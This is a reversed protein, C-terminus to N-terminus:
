EEKAKVREAYEAAISDADIHKYPGLLAVTRAMNEWRDPDLAVLLMGRCKSSLGTAMQAAEEDTLYEGSSVWINLHNDFFPKLSTIYEDTSDDFALDEFGYSYKEFDDPILGKYVCWIEHRKKEYDFERSYTKGAIPPTFVLKQSEHKIRKEYPVCDIMKELVDKIDTSNDIGDEAIKKLDRFLSDKRDFTNEKAFWKEKIIRGSEESEAAFGVLTSLGSIWKKVKNWYDGDGETEEFTVEKAGESDLFYNIIKKRNANDEELSYGNMVVEEYKIKGDVNIRYVM